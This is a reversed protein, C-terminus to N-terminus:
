RSEVARHLATGAALSLLWAVVMGMANVGASEPWLSNVVAGTVLIVPYHLLFVPYSVRSLFAVVLRGAQAVLGRARGPEPLLCLLVATAGALAVRSRWEVALALGVILLLGLAAPERGARLGRAWRALLGLGYAGAFYPAWADLSPDLNWWLLSLLVLAVAVAVSVAGRRAADGRLGALTAALVVLGAYLQFDIAVYWVGASLADVGVVDHLLLIHAALQGPQPAAPITPHEILGRALGAALVAALVALLYPRALRQYRQWWRRPVERWAVAPRQGPAPWLSGAALFGGIVLFVQVVLRAHAALGDLLAPALERAVDCMPGYLALHHWVILQSALAKALDIWTSPLPVAAAAPRAPAGARVSAAPAPTARWGPHWAPMPAMPMRPPDLLATSASVAPSQFPVPDCVFPRFKGNIARAALAAPTVGAVLRLRAGM